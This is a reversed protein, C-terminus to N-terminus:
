LIFIVCDYIVFHKSIYSM